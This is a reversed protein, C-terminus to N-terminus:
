KQARAKLEEFWHENVVLLGSEGAVTERLMLFHKDDPAVAYPQVPGGFSFQGLSFLTKQADVIFAPTMRVQAAVLEGHNNRFFIEKGSHAWLPASGGATSVQWRATGVDPFPRVYVEFTGSEDSSYALWKGDPSLAPTTERAPSAVLPVLTTDGLHQALIDGNGQEGAVRRSILWQGDPSEFAQGYGIKSPFVRAAAGVGDARKSFTRGGGDGRDGLYLVHSGDPTWSPRFFNTDGFTIRSFPGNPLQKVWIDSKGNRSLEVATAKGDPSLGLTNV